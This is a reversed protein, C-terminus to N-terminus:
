QYGRGRKRKTVREAAALAPVLDQHLDVRVTGPSGIRGWERVVTWGALLDAQLAVAYFRAMRRDPDCRHITLM